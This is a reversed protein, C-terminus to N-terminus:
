RRRRAPPPPPPPEDMEEMEEFFADIDEESILFYNAHDRLQALKAVVNARELLEERGAGRLLAAHTDLLLAKIEGDLREALDGLRENDDMVAPMPAAGSDNKRAM